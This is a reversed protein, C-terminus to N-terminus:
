LFGPNGGVCRTDAASGGHRHGFRGPQRGAGDRRPGGTRPREDRGRQLALPGARRPAAAMRGRRRPPRPAPRAYRGHYLELFKARFGPVDVKIPCGGTCSKCALCGDMADKVQHSFDTADAAHPGRANRWRTGPPKALGTDRALVRAEAIPDVGAESLRRLWERVLMARGKPSHRREGTAKFSPCMADDADITFCAGNGNCHM